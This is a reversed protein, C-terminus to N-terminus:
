KRREGKRPGAKALLPQVEEVFDSVHKFARYVSAFRVYAVEDLAKLNKMVLEGLASVPVECVYEAYVASEVQRVISEIQLSSIPRKNCAKELGLRLKAPDFTERSEDKKIVKLAGNEVQEITWIRRQCNTCRRRRRVPFGSPHSRSDVVTLDGQRCFPYKM